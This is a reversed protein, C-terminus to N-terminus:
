KNFKKFKKVEELVEGPYHELLFDIDSESMDYFNMLFEEEEAKILKKKKKSFLKFYYWHPIDRINKKIFFQYWIDMSSARDMIKNNFFQAQKPYKRAFKRNMIFFFTEKDGNSLNKYESKDRFIFAPIHRM